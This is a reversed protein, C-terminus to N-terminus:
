FPIIVMYLKASPAYVLPVDPAAATDSLPVVPACVKLHPRVELEHERRIPVHRLRELNQRRILVRLLQHHLVRAEERLHTLSHPSYSDSTHTTVTEVYRTEGM